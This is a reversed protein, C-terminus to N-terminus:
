TPLPHRLKARLLDLDAVSLGHDALWRGVGGYRTSMQELFAAMTEARPRHADAPM